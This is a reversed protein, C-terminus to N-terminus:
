FTYARVEEEVTRRVAIHQVWLTIYVVGTCLGRVCVCGHWMMNTKNGLIKDVKCFAPHCVSVYL